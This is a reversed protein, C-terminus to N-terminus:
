FVSFLPSTEGNQGCFPCQESAIPIERDCKVCRKLFAEPTQGIQLKFPIHTISLAGGLIGLMTPFIGSLVHFFLDPHISVIRGHWLTVRNWPASVEITLFSTVSSVIMIAGCLKHNQPQVYMSMAVFITLVSSAMMLSLPQPIRLLLAFYLFLVGSVLSFATAVLPKEESNM